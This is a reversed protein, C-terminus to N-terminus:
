SRTSAALMAVARDNMMEPAAPFHISGEIRYRETEATGAKSVSRTRLCRPKQIMMAALLSISLFGFLPGAPSSKPARRRQCEEDSSLIRMTRPLSRKADIVTPPQWQRLIERIAQLRQSRRTLGVADKDTRGANRAM